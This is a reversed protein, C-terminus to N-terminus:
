LKKVMYTNKLEYGLKRFYDRVGIGAIVSIEKLKFERKCIIEAKKILKKGLGRHQPAKEKEGISVLIGYTRIERIVAKNQSLIRLRILSFLKTRKENEFSM